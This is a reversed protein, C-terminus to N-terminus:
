FLSEPVFLIDGPLLAFNPARGAGVDEVPVKIRKEGGDIVRTVTCSNKAAIRTFGGALTVAQVVSMGDEYAFTGPKQVEGFVFVKKSNFEKIFVSVQPSRLYRPKLCGTIAEAAAGASLGGVAVRGCLPFDIAGDPAVRFVGSLDPEQFVRVEFVDGAGLTSAPLAAPRQAAASGAEISAGENPGRFLRCGALGALLALWCAARRAGGRSITAIISIISLAPM